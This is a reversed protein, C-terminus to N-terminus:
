VSILLELSNRHLKIFGKSEMKKLLRSIVVRSTHLDQAIQQHTNKILTTGNVMAKDKLYKLLREDMKLFAISDVTELLETMRNHYSNLVFSRWSPHKAMWEDMKQVPIGLFSIDTEAIAKIDSQKNGLCCSFTMACADGMELFYLLLEDGDDDNRMIKIVGELLLPMMKITQGVEMIKDGAKFEYVLGTQLADTLLETDFISQYHTLFKESM